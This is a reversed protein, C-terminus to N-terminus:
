LWKASLVGQVLRVWCSSGLYCEGGTLAWCELCPGAKAASRGASVAQWATATPVNTCQEPSRSELEGFCVTAGLAARGSCRWFCHQIGGAWCPLAVVVLEPPAVTGKECSWSVGTFCIIVLNDAAAIEIKKNGSWVFLNKM